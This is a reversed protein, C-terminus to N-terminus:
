TKLDGEHPEPSEHCDRMAMNAHYRNSPQCLDRCAFANLQLEECLLKGATHKHRVMCVDHSPLLLRCSEYKDQDLPIILMCAGPLRQQSGSSQTPLMTTLRSHEHLKIPHRQPGHVYINYTTLRIRVAGEEPPQMGLKRAVALTVRSMLIAGTQCGHVNQFSCLDGSNINNFKLWTRLSGYRIALWLSEGLVPDPQRMFQCGQLLYLVHAFASLSGHSEWMASCALALVPLCQLNAWWYSTIGSESYPFDQWLELTFGEEKPDSLQRFNVLRGVLPVHALTSFTAM